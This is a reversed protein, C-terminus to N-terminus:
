ITDRLLTQGYPKASLKGDAFVQQGRVYTAVVRGRLEQDKYPTLKHKHQLVAESTDALKEPDWVQEWEFM